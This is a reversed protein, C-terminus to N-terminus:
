RLLSSSKSTGTSRDSLKLEEFVDLDLLDFFAGGGGGGAPAEPAEPAAEETETEGDGGGCKSDAVGGATGGLSSPESSSGESVADGDGALLVNRNGGAM